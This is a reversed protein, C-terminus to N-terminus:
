FRRHRQFIPEKSDPSVDSVVVNGNQGAYHKRYNRQWMLVM